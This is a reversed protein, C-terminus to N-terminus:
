LVFKEVIDSPDINFAKLRKLFHQVDSFFEKYHNTFRKEDRLSIFHGNFSNFLDTEIDIFFREHDQRLINERCGLTNQYPIINEIQESLKKSEIKLWWRIAVIAIIALAAISM